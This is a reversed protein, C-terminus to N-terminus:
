WGLAPCSRYAPERGKVFPLQILAACDPDSLVGERDDVGLWQVTEPVPVDWGQPRLRRMLEGWVPLAGSSGTLGAPRNDDRGLWVVALADNGFGAFWSDRLDDTTGTKGAMAPNGPLAQYVSRGTGRRFAEQLISNLVYVSGGDFAPEVTLRYRNLPQGTADTVERIARLPVRFGGNALSQYMQTVQLPSLDVAGLTLSPFAPLEDDIGLRALTYLVKRLGVDMGLRVTALNWSNVLAEHLSVTGHESHDFNRPAWVSGDPQRIRVARDELRSAAHYGGDPGLATLYVAPKIISGVQRRADLVRNFGPQRYARGAVLAQVEGGNPSAVVLAAQLSGSKVGTRKELADLGDM